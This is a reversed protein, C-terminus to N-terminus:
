IITIEAKRLRMDFPSGVSFYGKNGTPGFSCNDGIITKYEIRKEVSLSSQITMNTIKIIGAHNFADTACYVEGVEM